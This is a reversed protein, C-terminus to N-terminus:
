KCICPFDSSCQKGDTTNQSYCGFGKGKLQPNGQIAGTLSNGFVLWCGPPGHDAGTVTYNSSQLYNSCDSSTLNQMGHSSCTGDSIWQFNTSNFKEKVSGSVYYYLFALIALIVVVTLFSFMSNRKM